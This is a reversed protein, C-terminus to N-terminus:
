HVVSYSSIRHSDEGSFRELSQFGFDVIEEDAQYVQYDSSM